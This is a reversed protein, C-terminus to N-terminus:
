AAEENLSNDATPEVIRSVASPQLSVVEKRLDQLEAHLAQISAILVGAVDVLHITRDTGVGFAEHFDQAMPGVHELADGRYRWKHVPLRVVGELVPAADLPRIDEKLNRDSGGMALAMLMAGAINGGAEIAGPAWMSASSPGQPPQVANQGFMFPLNSQQPPQYNINMLTNLFDGTGGMYLNSLNSARDSLFGALNGTTAMDYNLVNQEAGLVDGRVAAEYAAQAADLGSQAGLATQVGGYQYGARQAGQLQAAQLSEGSLASLVDIRERTLSEELRGLAGARREAVGYGGRAAETSSLLGRNQLDLTLRGQEEDFVREVDARQQTGLGELESQASAYRADYGGLIGQERGGLENLFGAMDGRYGSMLEEGRGEVGGLFDRGSSATLDALDRSGLGMRMQLAKLERLPRRSERLYLAMGKGTREEALGTVQQIQEDIRTEYEDQSEGQKQSGFLMALFQIPASSLFEGLNFGGGGDDGDLMQGGVTYDYWAM